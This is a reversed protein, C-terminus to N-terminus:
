DFVIKYRTTKAKMIMRPYKELDFLKEKEDEISVSSTGENEEEGYLEIFRNM